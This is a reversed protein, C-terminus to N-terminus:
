AFMDAIGALDPGDEAHARIGEQGGMEITMYQAQLASRQKRREERTTIKGQESVSVGRLGELLDLVLAKQRRGTTAQLLAQETEAVKVEPISQLSLIVSRPTKTLHIYEIWISAILQALDKQLDVFYPDHVSTICAKLIETSMYERISAATPTDPVPRFDTIISRLVRSIIGCCRTDKMQLVHTCFLMVPELIQPTSLVFHRMSEPEQPRPAPQVSSPSHNPKPDHKNPDLFNAVQIVASYTLQRLVSEDKMEDALNAAEIGAKRREISEWEVTLKKDIQTFLTSIMPPLFQGRYKPPCDDILCRAVNLLVSFQHSSLRPANEFLAEALPAGLHEHHYFPDGLRSMSFIISYGCERVARIKGRTSSSFGELTDKTESVRAYFEEKSGPSIGAQWFRDTLVRGVIPRIEEPLGSWSDPNHFAHANKVLNMCTSVVSPILDSWLERAIEHAPDKPKVRDTTVALMTKTSRIPLRSLRYIMESHIMKGEESLNVASWDEINNAGVSQLYPFVKDLGLMECFGDFSASANVFEPDLWAKQISERFKQLRALRVSPDVKRSRQRYTYQMIMLLISSLDIGAKDGTATMSAIEQVKADLMAYFDSFYDSYRIALRRVEYTALNNLERVAESYSPFESKEPVFSTMIHELVRLAFDPKDSLAKASLDVVVRLTRQKIHPDEFTREMLSYGWSQLNNELRARLQAASEPKSGRADVWKRFGKLVGEVVSFQTDARLLALTWKRCRSPHFPELGNYINNLNYDVCSLLHTMAEDPRIQVILDILASCYKRYNAVFAHKEPDTDIDENLFIVTPNDNSEPLAEYRVMRSTCIELIPGIIANIVNSSNVWSIDLLKSFAHLIPISVVLSPHVLIDLLFAFFTELEAGECKHDGYELYSCLYAALESIKKSITYKLETVDDPGVVSWQYLQRLFIINDSGFIANMLDPSITNGTRGFLAHLADVAGLIVEENRTTLALFINPVAKSIEIAAPMAWALISTLTSLSGLLCVMAQPSSNINQVCEFLLNSVRALWGEPGCRLQAADGNKTFLNEFVELPTCIEVLKRNLDTGRLSSATDEHHIIDESLTELVVLVFEKHLLSRNWLEVLEEDMTWWELAWTRKAVEVWLLAVKNRIYAPDDSALNSTLQLVLDRIQGIEDPSLSMSGHKLLHQLLSLGFHRVIPSNSKNAALLYGNKAAEFGGAKQFELFDSAQRREENTSVRDHIVQLARIIDDIGPTPVTFTTAESM